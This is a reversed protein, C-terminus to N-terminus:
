FFPSSVNGYKKFALQLDTDEISVGIAEGGVYLKTTTM